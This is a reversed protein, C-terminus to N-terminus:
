RSAAYRFHPMAKDGWQRITEPCIEQPVTVMQILCMIEDAGSEALREVYEITNEWNGCAHNVNYTALSSPRVPIKAEHLRAVMQEAYKRIAAVNDDNDTDQAPPPATGAPSPSPSSGNVALGSEPRRMPM